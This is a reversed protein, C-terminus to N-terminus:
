EEARLIESYFREDLADLEDFKSCIQEQRKKIYGYDGGDQLRWLLAMICTHANILATVTDNKEPTNIIRTKSVAHYFTKLNQWYQAVTYIVKNLADNDSLLWNKLVKINESHAKRSGDLLDKTYSEAVSKNDTGFLKNKVLVRCGDSRKLPKSGYHRNALLLNTLSVTCVGYVWSNIYNPEVIDVTDSDLDYGYVTVYHQAHSKMYTDARNEFYYCDVGVILPSGGDISKVLTKKDFRPKRIDFGMSKFLAKEEVVEKWEVTFNEHVSAFTNLLINDKEIGFCSLASILQHYYCSRFFFENFPKMGELKNKQM